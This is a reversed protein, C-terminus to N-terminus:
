NMCKPTYNNDLPYTIIDKQKLTDDHMSVQIINPNHYTKFYLTKNHQDMCTSYRTYEYGKDTKVVGKPMSVQSLCYFLNLGNDEEETAQSIYHTAFAAKIFRSTSSYDGPLSLADLGRSYPTVHLNPFLNNKLMENSLHLYDQMRLTQLPFPPNNTLVHYPNDYLHIGSEEIEIVISEKKDSCMYHLSSLKTNKNLSINIINIKKFLQKVEKVNKCTGLVLLMMEYPTYNKKTKDIKHYKANGVFNLGAIALGHENMGDCLLPYSDIVVGVGIIAYHEKIAKEKKFIFPFKTSLLIVEFPIDEDLDMNRGFYSHKSISHICTCM